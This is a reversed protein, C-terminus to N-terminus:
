GEGSEADEEGESGDDMAAMLLEEFDSRGMGKAGDRDLNEYIYFEYGTRVQVTKQGQSTAMRPASMMGDMVVDSMIPNHTLVGALVGAAGSAVDSAVKGAVRKGEKKREVPCYIGKTGDGDYVCLNAYYIKGNHQVSEIKIDLRKGIRCIGTVHTNAPVIHGDSLRMDQMLRMIVRQGDLLKETKLFTARAPVPAGKVTRTGAVPGDLSSIIGEDQFSNVAIRGADERKRSSSEVAPPPPQPTPMTDKPTADTQYKMAMKMVKDVRALYISDQEEPTLEREEGEDEEEDKEGELAKRHEEDIEEKTMLGLTVLEREHDSYAPGDMGDPVTGSFTGDGSSGGGSSSAAASGGGGKGTMLPAEGLADWYKGPSVSGDYKSRAYMEGLGMKRSKETADPVQMMVAEPEAADNKPSGKRLIFFVGAGAGGLLLVAFLMKAWAPLSVIWDILKDM